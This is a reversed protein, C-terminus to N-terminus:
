PLNRSRWMSGAILSDKRWCRAPICSRWRAFLFAWALGLLLYACIAGYITDSTVTKSKLVNSLIAIATLLFFSVGFGRSIATTLPNMHQAYALWQAGLMGAALVIAVALFRRNHSVAYAGAVLVVAFFMGVHRTEAVEQDIFPYLAFLLLLAILLTLYRQRLLRHRARESERGIMPATSM